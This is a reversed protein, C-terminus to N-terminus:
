ATASAIAARSTEIARDFVALVEAHTHTDNFESVSPSDSVFQRLADRARWFEELGETVKSIAGLSCWCVADPDRPECEMQDARSAMVDQTWNKPDAILARAAILKEALSGSAAVTQNTQDTM